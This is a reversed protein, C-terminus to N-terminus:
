IGPVPYHSHVFFIIPPASCTMLSKCHESSVTFLLCTICSPIIRSFPSMRESDSDSYNVPSVGFSMIEDPSMAMSDLANQDMKMHHTLIKDGSRSVPFSRFLFSRRSSFKDYFYGHQAIFDSLFYM